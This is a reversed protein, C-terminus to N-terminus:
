SPHDRKEWGARMPLEHQKYGILPSRAPRSATSISQQYYGVYPAQIGQINHLPAWSSDEIARYQCGIKSWGALVLCCFLAFTVPATQLFWVRQSSWLSLRLGNMYQINVMVITRVHSTGLSNATDSLLPPRLDGRLQPSQVGSYSSTSIHALTWAATIWVISM